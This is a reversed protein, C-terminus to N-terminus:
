ALADRRDALQDLARDDIGARCTAPRVARPRPEASITIGGEDRDFVLAANPPLDVVAVEVGGTHHYVHRVHEGLGRRLERDPVLLTRMGSPLVLVERANELGEVAYDSTGGWATFLHGVGGSRDRGVAYVCYDPAYFALHRFAGGSDPFSLVATEEPDHTEVYDILSSWFQDNERLDYQRTRDVAPNVPAETESAVLPAPAEDRTMYTRGATPYVFFGLTNLGLLGVVAGRMALVGADPVQPLRDAFGLPRVPRSRQWDQVMRVALATAVIQASPLLLLVYGLQGTHVLLFVALAPTVWLLMLRRDDRDLVDRPRLGRLATIPLAFLLVNLGLVLGILVLGVNQMLGVPDLGLVWTRGGALEALSRSLELYSSLGGSLTLLPVLWLSCVLAMAGVAQAKVRFPHRWAAWILVPVLFLVDTQRLSGLVGALVAAYFLHRRSDDHRAVHAAWILFVTVAAGVVYTLAVVSYYWVIPSTGILAASVIATRRSVMRRALLFTGVPLLAGALVSVAVLATNPDDFFFGTIRGMAIYGLYGPPHPQHHALDFANIGLAFNVADWNVLFHSRLPWRVAVFTLFLSISVFKDSALARRGLDIHGRAM